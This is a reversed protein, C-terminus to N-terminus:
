DDFHGANLLEVLTPIHAGYEITRHQMRVPRSLDRSTTYKMLTGTDADPAPEIVHVSGAKRAKPDFLMRARIVEFSYGRGMRNMGKALGNVAETYANTIPQEFYAFIEDHWNAMASLLDKFTPKMETSVNALWQGYAAEASPRNQHDWISM